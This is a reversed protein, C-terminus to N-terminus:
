LWRYLKGDTLRRIAYALRGWCVIAGDTRIACTYIEDLTQYTGEPPDESYPGWCAITGDTRIGCRGSVGLSKFTGAPSDSFYEGWCKITDDTRIACIHRGSTAVAKYTEGRDRDDQIDRDLRELSSSIQWCVIQDAAGIACFSKGGATIAKFPASDNIYNGGIASGFRGVRGFRCSSTPTQGPRCYQGRRNDNYVVYGDTDLVMFQEQNWHNDPIAAISKFTGEFGFQQWDTRPSRSWCILDGSTRIACFGGYYPVGAVDQYTGEPSFPSFDDRQEGSCILTEDTRIACTGSIARYRGASEIFPPVVSVTITPAATRADKVLDAFTIGWDAASKATSIWGLASKVKGLAERAKSDLQSYAPASPVFCSAVTSLISTWEYRNGIDISRRGVQDLLARVCTVIAANNAQEIAPLAVKLLDLGLRIGDVVAAAETSRSSATWDSSQQALVFESQSLPWLYSEGIIEEAAEKIAIDLAGIPNNGGSLSVPHGGESATIEVGYNRNNAVKVRLDEGTSEACTHLRPRDKPLGKESDSVGAVWQPLRNGCQPEDVTLGFFRRLADSVSDSTLAAVAVGAAIGGFVILGVVVLPVVLAHAAFGASGAYVAPGYATVASAAEVDALNAKFTVEGDGIVVDQTVLPVWSGLEDSYWAPVVGTPTLSSTDVLFRFTLPRVIEAGTVEVAIPATALEEGEPVDAAGVSTESLSVRAEGSLAGRPAEVTVADFEALFSGGRPVTVAGGDTPVEVAPADDSRQEARWLFTAMQARTTDRGPCFGTGDGCGATIGSAALRAVDAAYWAGAPVDTFGPDPGDALSYARSLFAAMQARTVNRDPCYRTGDGCGATIGLQAMRGVFPAYFSEADVDSFRTQSVTPPDQGTLVRVTWVAMTKRDIAEGPCFGADCETGAFVGMATLAAVPESYYADGLSTVSGARSRWPWWARRQRRCLLRQPGVLLPPM